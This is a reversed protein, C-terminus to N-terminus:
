SWQYSIFSASLLMTAHVQQRGKKQTLGHAKNGKRMMDDLTDLLRREIV